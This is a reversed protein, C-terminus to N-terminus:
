TNGHKDKLRGTFKELSRSLGHLHLNLAVPFDFDRLGFGKDGGTWSNGLHCLKLSACNIGVAMTSSVFLPERWVTLHM